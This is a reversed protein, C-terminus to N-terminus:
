AELSLRSTSVGVHAILLRELILLHVVRVQHARRDGPCKQVTGEGERREHRQDASLIDTIQAPAPPSLRVKKAVGENLAKLQDFLKGRSTKNNAQQGRLTELEAKLENRRADAPDGKGGGSIRERITNQWGLHTAHATQLHEIRLSRVLKAQIGDIEKKLSDQEADYAAKDPRGGAVAAGDKGVVDSAPAPTSAGSRAPTAPKDAKPKASAGGAGNAKAKPAM